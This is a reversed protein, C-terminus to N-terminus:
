DSEARTGIVALPPLAPLADPPLAIPYCTVFVGSETRDLPTTAPAFALNDPM